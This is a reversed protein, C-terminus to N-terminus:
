LNDDNESLLNEERKVGEILLTEFHDAATIEQDADDDMPYYYATGCSSGSIVFCSPGGEHDPNEYWITYGATFSEGTRRDTLILQTGGGVSGGHYTEMREQRCIIEWLQSRISEDTIEGSYRTYVGDELVNCTTEFRYDEMNWASFNIEKLPETPFDVELSITSELPLDRQCGCLLMSLLLSLIVYKKM